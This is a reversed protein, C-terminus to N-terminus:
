DFKLARIRQKLPVITKQHEKKREKLQDLEKKLQQVLQDDGRTKAEALLCKKECLQIKVTNLSPKIEWIQSKLLAIQVLTEESLNKSKRKGCKGGHYKKNWKDSKKKRWKEDSSWSEGSSTEKDKETTTTVEGSQIASLRREICQLKRQLKERKHEDCAVDVDMLVAALLDRKATLQELSKGHCGRKGGNQHKGHHWQGRRHPNGHHADGHGHRGRGHHGYGYQNCHRPGYRGRGCRGLATTPESTTVDTMSETSVTTNEKKVEVFLRLLGASEAVACKLEEDCEVTVLDGEDDKYKLVFEGVVGYLSRIQTQLSAFDATSTACPFLFRRFENDLSVKCHISQM